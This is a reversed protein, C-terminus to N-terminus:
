LAVAGPTAVPVERVPRAAGPRGGRLFLVLMTPAYLLWTAVQLWTAVPTFGVTGKLLSGYWSAAPIWHSVDFAVATEPLVGVEELDHVGYALVGAAVVILALGTWRFFAGLDLRLAGKYFLWGLVAATLLGLVAGVVPVSTGGSTQVSSWLFLATELGERGVALLGVLALALGGTAIARDTAAHLESKLGRAARRMWFVMWTVLGVAVVSTLGAFLEEGEDGLEGSTFTLAAGVGVSAVIALAAGGLLWALGRRQDRRMLYAALIAVVLAAELGERLGILFNPFM